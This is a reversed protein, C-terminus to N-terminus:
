KILAQKKKRYELPSVGYFSKFVKAFYQQSSFGLKQSIEDITLADLQELLTTALDMRSELYKQKFTMGYHKMTIRNLQRVSVGLRDAAIEPSMEVHYERFINDLISLRNTDLNDYMFNGIHTSPIKQINQATSIFAQMILIWYQSINMADNECQIKEYIKKLNSSANYKDEGFFRRNKFIIDLINDFDSYIINNESIKDPKIPDISAMFTYEETPNNRQSLQSHPIQPGTIFFTGPKINYTKNEITVTEAGAPCYHFEFLPHDHTGTIYAQDSVHTIRDIQICYKNTIFKIKPTRIWVKPYVASDFRNDLTM